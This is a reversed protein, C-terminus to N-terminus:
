LVTSISQAAIRVLNGYEVAQIENVRYSPIVLSLAAVVRGGSSIPAAIATVDPEIGREVIVFGDAQTQGLLVQGAASSRLEVSRGVWSTHRVSHTGEHINIYLATSNHGRVSLYASEGTQDVLHNMTNDSIKVLSENSLARAGIQMVRSGPHYNNDHDKRVFGNSELTRLLRLATSPSLETYRAALALTVEGRDCVVALLSLAREVTRTGQEAM